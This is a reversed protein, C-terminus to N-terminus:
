PELLCPMLAAFLNSGDTIRDSAALRKKFTLRQQVIVEAGKM